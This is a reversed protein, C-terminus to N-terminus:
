GYRDFFDRFSPSRGLQPPPGRFAIRCTAGQRTRRPAPVGSVAARCNKNGATPWGGVAPGQEAAGGATAGANGCATARDAGHGTRGALVGLQKMRGTRLVLGGDARFATVPLGSRGRLWQTLILRGIQVSGARGSSGSTWYERQRQSMSILLPPVFPRPFTERGLFENSLQRPEATRWRLNFSRRAVASRRRYAGPM